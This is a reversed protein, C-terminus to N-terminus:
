GHLEVFFRLCIHADTMCALAWVWVEGCPVLVNAQVLRGEILAIDRLVIIRVTSVIRLLRLEGRLKDCRLSIRGVPLRRSRLSHRHLTALDVQPVGLGDFRVFLVLIFARIFLLQALAHCFADAVYLEM